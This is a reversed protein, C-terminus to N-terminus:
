VTVGRFPNVIVAVTVWLDIYQKVLFRRDDDFDTSGTLVYGTQVAEGDKGDIFMPSKSRLASKSIDVGFRDSVVERFENLAEPLTEASVIVPRIIGPDIWWKRSNYPKMTATTTFQYKNM